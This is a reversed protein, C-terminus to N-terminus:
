KIIIEDVFVYASDGQPARWSPIKALPVVSLRVYRAPTEPFDLTLEGLFNEAQAEADYKQSAM